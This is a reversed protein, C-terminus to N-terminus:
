VNAPARDLKERSSDFAENLLHGVLISELFAIAPIGDQSDAFGTEALLPLQLAHIFLEAHFGGHDAIRKFQREGDFSAAVRKVCVSGPFGLIAAAAAHKLAQCGLFGIM